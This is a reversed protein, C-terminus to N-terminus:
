RVHAATRTVQSPDMARRLAIAALIATAAPILASLTEQGRELGVAYLSWPLVSAVVALGFLILPRSPASAQQAAALTVAWPFALVLFDYSWMYPMLLLSFPLALAAFRVPGPDRRLVAVTM